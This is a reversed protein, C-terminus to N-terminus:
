RRVVVWLRRKSPLGLSGIWSPLRAASVSLKSPSRRTWLPSASAAHSALPLSSSLPLARAQALPLLLLRAFLHFLSPPLYTPLVPSATLSSFVLLCPLPRAPAKHGLQKRQLSDVSLAPATALTTAAELDRTAEVEPTEHPPRPPEAMFAVFQHFPLRTAEISPGAAASATALAAHLNSLEPPTLHRDLVSLILDAESREATGDHRRDFLAFATHLAGLANVGLLGVMAEADVAAGGAASRSGAHADSVGAIAAEKALPPPAVLRAASDANAAAIAEGCVAAHFPAGLLHIYFALLNSFPISGYQEFAALLKARGSHTLYATGASELFLDLDSSDIRGGGDLVCTVHDITYHPPRPPPAGLASSPVSADAHTHTALPAFAHYVQAVLSLFHESPPRPLALPLEPLVLAASPSRHRYHRPEPGADSAGEPPKLKQTAPSAAPTRLIRLAVSGKDAGAKSAGQALRFASLKVTVTCRRKERVSFTREEIAAAVVKRAARAQEREAEREAEARKRLYARQERKYADERSLLDRLRVEQEYQAAKVSEAEVMARRAVAEELEAAERAMLGHLSAQKAAALRKDTAARGATVAALRAATAAARRAEEEAAAKSEAALKASLAKAEAAEQEEKARTQANMAEAAAEAAAEAIAEAAKRAAEEEAAKEAAAEERQRLAEAAAAERAAASSLAGKRREDAAEAQAEGGADGGGRHVEVEGFSPDDAREALEVERADKELRRQLAYGGTGMRLVYGDYGGGVRGGGSAGYHESSGSGPPAQAYYVGGPSVDLHAGCFGGSYVSSDFGSGTSSRSPPESEAGEEVGAAAAASPTPADIGGDVGHGRRDAAAGGVGRGSGGTTSAGDQSRPTGVARPTRPTRPTQPTRPTRPTGAGDALGADGEDDMEDFPRPAHLRRRQEEAEDEPTSWQEQLRHMVRLGEVPRGQALHWAATQLCTARRSSGDHIERSRLAETSRRVSSVALQVEEARWSPVPLPVGTADTLPPAFAAYAGGIPAHACAQELHRVIGSLSSRMDALLCDRAKALTTLLRHAASAGAEARRIDHAEAARAALRDNREAIDHAKLAGSNQGSYALRWAVEDAKTMPGRLQARMAKAQREEAERREKTARVILKAHKADRQVQQQVREAQSLTYISFAGRTSASELRRTRLAM